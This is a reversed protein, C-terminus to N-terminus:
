AEIKQLRQEHEKVVEKTVELDVTIEGVKEFTLDVTKKIEPVDQVAERITELKHNFDEQLAGVYRKTRAEADAAIRDAQETLLRKLEKDDM